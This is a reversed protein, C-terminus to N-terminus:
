ISEAVKARELPLVVKGLTGAPQFAGDGGSSLVIARDSCFPHCLVSAMESVRDKFSAKDEDSMRDLMEWLLADASAGNMEHLLMRRNGSSFVAWCVSPALGQAQPVEPVDGASCAKTGSAPLSVEDPVNALSYVGKWLVCGVWLM